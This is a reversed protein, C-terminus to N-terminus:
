VAQCFCETGSVSCATCSGECCGVDRGGPDSPNCVAGVGACPTNRCTCRTVGSETVCGCQNSACRADFGNPCFTGPTETGQVCRYGLCRRSQCDADVQCEANNPESDSGGDCEGGECAKTCCAANGLGACSSGEGICTPKPNCVGNLCKGDGNCASDNPKGACPGPSTTSRKKKKKKKKKGKKGKGETEALGLLALPGSVAVGALLRTLGRRSRVDTLSRVLTDFRSDDM